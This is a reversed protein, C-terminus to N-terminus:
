QPRWALLRVDAVRDLHRQMAAAAGEADGAEIADAIRRHDALSRPPRDQQSLSESRTEVVDDDIRAMMDRLTPNDAAATVAAHFAADGRSGVEGTAIESAMLELARHMAAIDQPTRRQAALAAAPVELIRRAEHVSPLHARRAAVSALPEADLDLRSVFTGGGQRSALVGSDVLGAIAQRVSTRSVSLRRALERESPIRDGEALDNQVIHSLVRRAVLEHVSTRPVPHLADSGEVPAVDARQPVARM